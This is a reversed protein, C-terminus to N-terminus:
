PPLFLLLPAHHHPIFTALRAGRVFNLKRIMKPGGMEGTRKPLLRGRLTMGRGGIYKDNNILSGMEM